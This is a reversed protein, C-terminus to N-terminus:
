LRVHLSVTTSLLYMCCQGPTSRLNEQRGGWNIDATVFFFIDARAELPKSEVAVNGAKEPSLVEKPLAQFAALVEPSQPPIDFDTVLQNTAPSPLALVAAAFVATMTALTFKM